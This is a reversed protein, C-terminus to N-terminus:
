EFVRRVDEREFELRSPAKDTAHLTLSSTVSAETVDRAVFRVAITVSDALYGQETVPLAVRQPTLGIPKRNLVVMAERPDSVVEVAITPADPDGGVVAVAPARSSDGMGPYTATLSCGGWWLIGGLMLFTLWSQKNLM